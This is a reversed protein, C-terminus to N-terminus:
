SWQKIFKLKWWIFKKADNLWENVKILWIKILVVSRSIILWFRRRIKLWRGNIWKLRNIILVNSKSKQKLTRCYWDWLESKSLQNIRAFIQKWWAKYFKNLSLISSVKGSFSEAFIWKKEVGWNEKKCM